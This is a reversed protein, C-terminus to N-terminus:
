PRPSRDQKALLTSEPAGNELPCDTAIIASGQTLLNIWKNGAINIAKLIGALVRSSLFAM